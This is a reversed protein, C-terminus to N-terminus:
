NPAPPVSHPEGAGACLISGRAAATRSPDDGTLCVTESRQPMGGEEQLLYLRKTVEDGRECAIRYENMTIPGRRRGELADLRAKLDCIENFLQHCTPTM